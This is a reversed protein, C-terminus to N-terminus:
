EGREEKASEEEAELKDKACELKWEWYPKLKSETEEILLEEAKKVNDIFLQPVEGPASTWERENESISHYLSIKERETFNDTLLIISSAIIRWPQSNLKYCGAVKGLTNFKGYFLPNQIKQVVINPVLIGAPDIDVIYHALSYGGKDYKILLSILNEVAEITNNDTVDSASIKKVFRSITSVDDTASLNLMDNPFQKCRDTLAQALWIVSPTQQVLKQIEYISFVAGQLEHSVDKFLLFQELLWKIIDHPYLIKEQNHKKVEITELISTSLHRMSGQLNAKRIESLALSVVNKFEDWKYYFFHGIMHIFQAAYGKQIFINGFRYLRQVEKHLDNGEPPWMYLRLLFHIKITDSSCFGIIMDILDNITQANCSGRRETVLSAAAQIAFGTKYPIKNDSDSSNYSLAEQIFKQVEQNDKGLSGVQAAISNLHYSEQSNDGFFQSFREIFSEIEKSNNKKVLEQATDKYKQQAEKHHYRSSMWSMENVLNNEQYMQELADSIKKFEANEDFQYHWSWLSRAANLESIHVNKQTLLEKTWNLDDLLENYLLNNQKEPIKENHYCQNVHSHKSSLVNWLAIRTIEPVDDKKLTEKIKDLVECRTKGIVSDNLILYSKIHFKNDEFWHHERVISVIPNLLAKLSTIQSSLPIEKESYEKILLLAQKQAIQNFTDRLHPDGHIVRGILNVARKGDNLLFNKKRDSPINEEAEAIALLEHIIQNREADNSAGPASIFVPWALSLIIDDQTVTRPSPWGEIEEDEVKGQRLKKSLDVIQAPNAWAIIKIIEICRLRKSASFKSIHELIEQFFIDLLPQKMEFTRSLIKEIRALSELIIKDLHSLNGNTINNIIKQLRKKGDKNSELSPKEGSVADDYYLWECLIYDRIVDPKIEVLRNYAGHNVLAKKQILITLLEHISDTDINIEKAIEDLLYKDKRNVTGILAVYHILDRVQDASFNKQKTIIEEAYIKALDGSKKPIEDLNGDKELLHIALSIWIPNQSFRKSLNQAVKKHWQPNNDKLKESSRMWNLCLTEAQQTTLSKLHLEEVRKKIKPDRLFNLVSDKPSRVSVIVKWNVTHQNWNGIQEDLIKLLNLHEPQPEDILLLTPKEPSIADFWFNSANMSEVLAWFVQFNEEEARWGAELLLRTKGIGGSGDIVMFRKDPSELFRKIQELEKDRGVFQSKVNPDLFPQQERVCEEAEPLILFVRNEGQFFTREIESHKDLFGDLNAKTWYDATLGLQKAIPVIQENWKQNDNPNFDANTILKWHTVKEWLKHNQHDPKQYKQIKELEKKADNRANDASANQHFKMQYVMIGDSSLADIGADKGKRGFLKAKPDEFQIISRALAEFTAGSQISGWNRQERDTM